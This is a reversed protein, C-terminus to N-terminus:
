RNNKKIAQKTYQLTFFINPIIIINPRNISEVISMPSATTSFTKNQSNLALFSPVVKKNRTAKSWSYNGSTVKAFLVNVVVSALVQVGLVGTWWHFKLFYVFCQCTGISPQNEGNANAWDALNSSNHPQQLKRPITLTFAGSASSTIHSTVPNSLSGM